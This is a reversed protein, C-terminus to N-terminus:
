RNDQELSRIRVSYDAVTKELTTVQAVLKTNQSNVEDLDRNLTSIEDTLRKKILELTQYRVSADSTTKQLNIIEAQKEELEEKVWKVENEKLELKRKSSTELESYSSKLANIEHEIADDQVPTINALEEAHKEKLTDLDLRLNEILEKDSTTTVTLSNNETILKQKEMALEQIRLERKSLETQLDSYQQLTEEFAHEKKAFAEKDAQADATVRKLSNKSEELERAQADVQEQLEGSQSSFKGQLANSQQYLQEEYEKAQNALMEEYKSEQASFKDQFEQQKKSLLDEFTKEQTSLNEEVEKIQSIIKNDFESSQSALKQEFETTQAAFKEELEKLQTILKEKIETTAALKASLAAERQRQEHDVINAMKFYLEHALETFEAPVDGAQDLDKSKEHWQNLYKEVTATTGRGLIEHVNNVNPTEGTELVSEVADFVEAKSIRKATM